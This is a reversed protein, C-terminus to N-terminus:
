DEHRNARGAVIADIRAKVEAMVDDHPYWVADPSDAERIAEEVQERFWRDHESAEAARKMRRTTDPRRHAEKVQEPDYGSADVTFRDIGLGKLYSVLTEFRRFVRLGGRRAALSREANGARIRVGWGDSRGIIAADEVAGAEVLQALTNHDISERSSM